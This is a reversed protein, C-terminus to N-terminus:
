SMGCWRAIWGPIGAPIQEAQRILARRRRYDGAYCRPSASAELALAEGAPYGLERALALARRADEVAEPIRGLNLLIM